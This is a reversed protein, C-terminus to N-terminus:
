SFNGKSRALDASLRGAPAPQRASPHALAVSSSPSLLFSLLRMFSITTLPNSSVVTPSAVYFHPYQQEAKIGNGNGDNLVATPGLSNLSM